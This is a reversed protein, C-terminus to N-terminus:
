PTEDKVLGKGILIGRTEAAHLELVTVRHNTTTVQAEIRAQGESLGKVQLAAIEQNENLKREFRKWLWSSLWRAGGVVVVAPMTYSAYQAIM